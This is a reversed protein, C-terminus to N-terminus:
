KVVPIANNFVRLPGDQFRRILFALAQVWENVPDGASMGYANSEGMVVMRRVPQSRYDQRFM